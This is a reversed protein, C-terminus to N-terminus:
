KGDRMPMENQTLVEGYASLKWDGKKKRGADGPQPGTGSGAATLSPKMWASSFGSVSPFNPLFLPHSQIPRFM